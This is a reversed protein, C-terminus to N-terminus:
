EELEEALTNMGETVAGDAVQKVQANFMENDSTVKIELVLKQAIAAAAGQAGGTALGQLIDSEKVQQNIDRVTRALGGMGPAGVAEAFAEPNEEAIKGIEQIQKWTERARNIAELADAIAKVAGAIGNLADLAGQFDGANLSQALGAIDDSIKEWDLKELIDFLKELNGALFEGINNAFAEVKDPNEQLWDALESLEKNLVDFLPKGVIEAIQGLIQQFRELGALEAVDEILGATAGAKTLAEDLTDLDKLADKAAESTKTSIFTVGQGIQDPVKAVEDAADKIGILQRLNVDLFMELSSWDGTQVASSLGRALRDLPVDPRLASMRQLMNMLRQFKSFDFAGSADKAAVSMLGAGAALEDFDAGTDAATQRLLDMVRAADDSSGTINKLKAELKAADGAGKIFTDFVWHGAQALTNLAERVFFVDQALSRLSQGASKVGNSIGSVLNGFAGAAARAGSSFGRSVLELIIRLHKDV